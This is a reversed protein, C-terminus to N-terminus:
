CFNQKFPRSKLQLDTGALWAGFVLRLNRFHFGDFIQGAESVFRGGKLTPSEANAAFSRVEGLVEGVLLV